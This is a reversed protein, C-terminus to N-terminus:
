STEESDPAKQVEATAAAEAEQIRRIEYIHEAMQTVTGMLGVNQIVQIDIETMKEPKILDVYSELWDRNVPCVQGTSVYSDHDLFPYDAKLLPVYSFIISRGEKAARDKEAQATTIPVVLASKPNIDAFDSDHLVILNHQGQLIFSPPPTNGGVKVEQKPIYGKIVFGREFYEQAM